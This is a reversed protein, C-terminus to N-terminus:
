EYGRQVQLTHQDQRDPHTVSAVKSPPLKGRCGSLSTWASFTKPRACSEDKKDIQFKIWDLLAFVGTTDLIRGEQLSYVTKNDAKLFYNNM